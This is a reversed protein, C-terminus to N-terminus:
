TEPRNERKKEETRQKLYPSSFCVGCHDKRDVDFEKKKKMEAPTYGTTGLTTGARNEGRRKGGSRGSPWRQLPIEM